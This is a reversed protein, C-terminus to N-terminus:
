SVMWKEGELQLTLGTPEQDEPDPLDEPDEQGRRQPWSEGTAQTEGTHPLRSRELYRHLLKREHGRLSKCYIRYQWQLEIRCRCVCAMVEQLRWHCRAPEM